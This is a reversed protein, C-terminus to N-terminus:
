KPATVLPGIISRGRGRNLISVSGAPVNRRTQGRSTDCNTNSALASKIPASEHRTTVWGTTRVSVSHATDSGRSGPVFWHNRSRKGYGQISARVSMGIVRRLLANM